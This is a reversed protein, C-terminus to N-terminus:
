IVVHPEFRGRVPIDLLFTKGAEPDAARAERGHGELGLHRGHPRMRASSPRAPRSSRRCPSRASSSATRRIPTSARRAGAANWLVGDADVVSGDVWGESSRTDAFVGARGRCAPRRIAPSASDRELDPRHFLRDRRRALLLDLQPDHGPPLAHAARGQLVLLHRRGEGEDKAMTGIWFAGCPHVRSDNSRTLPNDAEIATHLTLAGTRADRVHLGTETAILQRDADITAIASAM